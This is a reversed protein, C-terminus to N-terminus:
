SVKVVHPEPGTADIRCRKAVALEVGLRNSATFAAHVEYVGPAVQVTPWQSRRTWEISSPVYAASALRDSCAWRMRDALPPREQKALYAAKREAQTMMFIGKPEASTTVMAPAPQAQAMVGPVGLTLVPIAVLFVGLAAVASLIIRRM